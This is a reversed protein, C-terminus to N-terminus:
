KRMFDVYQMTGWAVLTILAAAAVILLVLEIVESIEKKRKAAVKEMEIEEAKNRAVINNRERLFDMWLNTKGRRMFSIKIQEEVQQMEEALQIIQMAEANASQFPRKTPNAKAKMIADKADFFQHILASADKGLAIAQKVGAITAKATAILTIPDIM